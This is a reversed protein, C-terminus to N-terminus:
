PLLAPLILTTAVAPLTLVPASVALVPLAVPVPALPATALTVTLPTFTFKTVISVLPWALPLPPAILALAVPIKVKFPATFLEPPVTMVPLAPLFAPAISKVPLLM